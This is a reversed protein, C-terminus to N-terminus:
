NHRRSGTLLNLGQTLVFAITVAYLDDRVDWWEFVLSFGIVHQVTEILLGLGFAFAAAVAEEWLTQALMMLVLATSGFTAFHYVRHAVGVYGTTPDYPETGLLVKIEGPLFSGAIASLILFAALLKLVRRSLITKYTGLRTNDNLHLSTNM